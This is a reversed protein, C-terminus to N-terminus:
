KRSKDKEALFKDRNEREMPAELAEYLAVHEHLSKYTGSEFMRQHLIEKMDAEPLERFHDRLPTQLAVHVVEKVAERITEDIKHPLDRLELTFVRSGLNRTTNDLNKNKQELDSFKKELTTVCAVLESDTTSQQQPPPPLPLTTTTTSTTATFIPAQTTSSVLKPSSLDIVPTSLPPVSSSAQYILVTVMSVVEAEVNLKKPEDETSKDNLFQDGITYADDLNKMSSLTGTSSLPDQLIVHEDAPFKLSEHVNPYVNAMFGDHMPKPNPKALAVRSEGPNPRAQDEDMKDDDPPPRSEPTKGPDSGAQGEDIEVTKEEAGTKADAITLSDRVINTSADDQPLASPGTSADETAPTRRQSQAQFSELSMQIAREVDYEDGEGLYKTEPEPEPQTPEDEDILQLPNKPKPTPTPKSSKEKASKPKLQKATAPKKKGGNEATIKRDHKAVMELYAKYYSANRINNTIMENPIPMGFVEDDEGKPIFKLNRLRLDEEALHLPSEFGLENVFDMIADGSPPSVFQHVQDIPTIELADRLLNADLLFRTEDLQFSYAGTKAEYTLTNWAVFILIQDNSRIPAPAPVNEDAIKDRLSKGSDLIMSCVAILFGLWVEIVKLVVPCANSAELVNRLMDMVVFMYVVVVFLLQSIFTLEEEGEQLRKLTEPTMSKMGLRPLLFEFRERPLAKTFIDALQYDTTVFYLEVVGKEVQDRIFHHRIDIHKSRSHHVNNCCLAIASRNDYYLPIKNFAFGYDTLHSRMWLIRACCGSMAIYEAKRRTDQCGAHDAYAYATLAMVTDKPYWLGWNITGRLYRFVRKLAELYTKTPLAQYRACMCIAFVLDPRSVTLYMLSGVMSRFRTQDVPIGLPDEDLKLRDVMPTDVPDYLDMMQGMMSMQFKLSLENSFIDCVKPDTSAFTIDDVYTQVLLIHKGTKQTFLTLDVAGKSFKNDQLFRSLTDYWARPAQKLGYLAKKQRYVHTPHDLDVFGEPQSVYVDEKLKGNLFATKVNMQYIIMNKSATNPQNPLNPILSFIFIRIAEIRQLPSFSEELDICEEQRKIRAELRANIIGYGPNTKSSKPGFLCKLPPSEDHGEDLNTYLNSCRSGKILEVVKQIEFMVHTAEQICDIGRLNEKGNKTQQVSLVNSTTLRTLPFHINKEHAEM